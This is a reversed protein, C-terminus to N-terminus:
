PSEDRLACRALLGLAFGLTSLALVPPLFAAVSPLQYGLTVTGTGGVLPAGRGVSLDTVVVSAAGLKSAAGLALTPLYGRNLYAHGATLAVVVAYASPSSLGFATNVVSWGSLPFGSDYYSRVFSSWVAAGVVVLAASALLALATRWRSDGVLLARSDEFPAPGRDTSTAM